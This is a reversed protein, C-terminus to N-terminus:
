DKLLQKVQKNLTNLEDEVQRTKVMHYHISSQTSNTTGTDPVTDLSELSELANQLLELYGTPTGNLEKIRSVEMDTIGKVYSIFEKATM